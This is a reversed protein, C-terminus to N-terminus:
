LGRQLFYEERTMSYCCDDYVKGDYTITAKRLVGEHNFGCKLIVNKSRENFPYHYVSLVDVSLEIFAYDIIAKSAETAFGQGWYNESLVYGLMKADKNDRKRDKHLGISGIVKNESKLEIAWVEDSLIFNKLISLSEEKSKHFDWGANPGVNPNKAYEYFDGLDSLKFRRLLLRRTNIEKL